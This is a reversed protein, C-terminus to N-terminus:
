MAFTPALGDDKDYRAVLELAEAVKGNGGLAALLWSLYVPQVEFGSQELRAHISLAKIDGAPANECAKFALRVSRLDPGEDSTTIADWFSLARTTRGCAICTAMLANHLNTDPEISTDLKLLNYLKAFSDDDALVELGVLCSVYTDATPVTDDRTHLRMHEFVQVALDGRNRMFLEVMLRTRQERNMDDFTKRLMEIITWVLETKIEKSKCLAIIAELIDQREAVTCSYSYTNLLDEADEVEARTLHLVALTSVTESEFAMNDDTMDAAVDMISDFDHRRSRCMARLLQNVVESAEGEEVMTEKRMRGYAGLAGDTDKMDLRYRMQLIFTQSSPKIGRREGMHSVREAMYADKRWLTLKILSNITDIDATYPSSEMMVNIMREVEEVGKGSGLAWVLVLDLLGKDAEIDFVDTVLQKGFAIDNRRICGWILAEFCQFLGSEPHRLKSDWMRKLNLREYWEKAKDLVNQRGYFECVTCMCEANGEVDFGSAKAADWTRSLEPENSSKAVAKLVKIWVAKRDGQPLEFSATEPQVSQENDLRALSPLVTSPTVKDMTVLEKAKSAAGNECLVAICAYFDKPSIPHNTAKSERLLDLYMLLALRAMPKLGDPGNKEGFNQTQGNQLAQLAQRISNIGLRAAETGRIYEYGQQVPGIQQDTIPSKSFTKYKFFARLAKQIEVPDNLRARLRLRKNHELLKEMGPDFRPRSAVNRPGRFLSNFFTRRQDLMVLPALGSGTPRPLRKGNRVSARCGAHHLIQGAALQRFVARTLQTRM